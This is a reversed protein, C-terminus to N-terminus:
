KPITKILQKDRHENIINDSLPAKDFSKIVSFFLVQNDRM